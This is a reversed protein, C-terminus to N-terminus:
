TTTEKKGLLSEARDVAAVPSASNDGRCVAHARLFEVLMAQEDDLQDVGCASGSFYDLAAGCSCTVIM